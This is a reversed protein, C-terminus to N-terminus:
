WDPSGDDMADLGLALQSPFFDIEEPSQAGLVGCGDVFYRVYEIELSFQIIRSLSLLGQSIARECLRHLLAIAASSEFIHLGVLLHRRDVLEVFFYHTSLEFDTLQHPVRSTLVPLLQLLLVPVVHQRQMTPLDELQLFILQV